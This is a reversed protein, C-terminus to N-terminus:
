CPAACGGGCCGAGDPRPEAPDVDPADPDVTPVKAVTSGMARRLFEARTIPVTWPKDAWGDADLVVLGQRECWEDPTRLDPGALVGAAEAVATLDDAPSAAWGCAYDGAALPEPVLEVLAVGNVVEWAQPVYGRRLFAAAMAAYPDGRDTTTGDARVAFRAPRPAPPRVEDPAGGLFDAEAWMGPLESPAPDGCVNAAFLPCAGCGGTVGCDDAPTTM